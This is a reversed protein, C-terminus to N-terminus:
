IIEMAIWTFPEQTAAYNTSCRHFRKRYKFNTTTIDYCYIVFVSVYNVITNAVVSPASTCSKSFTVTGTELGCAVYGALM